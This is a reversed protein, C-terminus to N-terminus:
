HTLSATLGTSSVTTIYDRAVIIVSLRQIVDRSLQRGVSVVGSYQDM